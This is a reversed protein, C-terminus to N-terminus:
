KLREAIYGICEANYDSIVFTKGHKIAEFAINGYGCFWNGLRNYRLALYTMLSLDNQLEPKNARYGFLYCKGVTGKLDARMSWSPTPLDRKGWQGCSLIVPTKTQLILESLRKTLQSFTRNPIGVRADFVKAGERWPPDFYIIDCTDYIDPYDDFIDHRFAVSKGYHFTDIPLAQEIKGSALATHYVFDNAM